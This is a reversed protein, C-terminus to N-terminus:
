RVDRLKDKGGRMKREGVKGRKKRRIERAEHVEKGRKGM